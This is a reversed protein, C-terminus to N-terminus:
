ECIADIIEDRAAEAEEVSYYNIVENVGQKFEVVLRPSINKESSRFGELARVRTIWDIRAFNGNPLIIETNKM